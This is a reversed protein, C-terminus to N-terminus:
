SNPEAQLLQAIRDFCMDWGDSHAARSDANEFREHTVVVETQNGRDIFEVTVLTASGYDRETNTFRWTYVLKKPPEVAEYTGVLHWAHGNPPKVTYRYAGGVRLDVEIEQVGDPPGWWQAIWAPDTWARFVRERPADLVRRVHLTTEVAPKPNTMQIMKRNACSNHWHM